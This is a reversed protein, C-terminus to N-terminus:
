PHFTDNIVVYDGHQQRQRRHHHNKATVNFQVYVGSIFLILVAAIEAYTKWPALILYTRNSIIHIIAVSFGGEAFRDICAIVGFAGAFSTGLILINKQLILTMLFFHLM